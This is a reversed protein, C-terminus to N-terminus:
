NRAAKELIVPLYGSIQAFVQEYVPMTKGYADTVDEITGNAYESFTFTRGAAEPFQVIVGAKHKETATLILDSHRIDQITLAAARHSSVDIGKRQLLSAAPAEPEINYPNLDLARSIVQIPLGKDRIIANALAEATVSRGTNGTDVFAIHKPGAAFAVAQGLYLAAVVATLRFFVMMQGNWERIAWEDPSEPANAM